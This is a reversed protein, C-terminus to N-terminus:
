ARCRRPARGAAAARAPSRSAARSCARCRARRSRGGLAEDDRGVRAQDDDLVDQSRRELLQSERLLAVPPLQPNGHRSRRPQRLEIMAGVDRLEARRATASERVAAARPLLARRAQAIEDRRRPRDRRAAAELRQGGAQAGPHHARQLEVCAVRELRRDVRLLLEFAHEALAVVEGRRRRELRKEVTDRPSRAAPPARGSASGVGAAGRRRRAKARRPRRRSVSGSPGSGPRSGAPADPRHASVIGVRRELERWDGHRCRRDGRHLRRRRGTHGHRRSRSRCRCGHRRAMAPPRTRRRRRTARPWLRRVGGRAIASVPLQRGVAGTRRGAPTRVATTSSRSRM